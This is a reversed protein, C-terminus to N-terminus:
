TPTSRARLLSSLLADLADRGTEVNSVQSVYWLPPAQRPWLAHLKVFDKLTCVAREGPALDRALREADASTFAHHDPFAGARVRAGAMALQAAFADPDGVASIALVAAGSLTSLPEPASADDHLRDLRLQVVAVPLAPAERAIAARVRAVDPEGVSKRTILALTARRLASLPERFPGAPMLRVHAPWRDASLLVVDATRAARRHQFADDLVAIDAGQAAARAIGAVRDADVIVPVGPTLRGHVLPEDDGYGRLVIAPRAGRMRLEAAIWSAVPTKGTGGVTLNGVSVSPIASAHTPLIRADYLAGRLAAAGRFLAAAPALLARAAAAGGDAGYWVRDAIASM